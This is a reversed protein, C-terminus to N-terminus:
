GVVDLTSPIVSVVEGDATLTVAVAQGVHLSNPDDDFYGYCDWGDFLEVEEGDIDSIVAVVTVTKQGRAAEITPALNTFAVGFFTCFCMLAICIRDFIMMM